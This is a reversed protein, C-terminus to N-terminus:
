KGTWDLRTIFNIQTVITSGTIGAAYTLTCDVVFKNGLENKIFVEYPVSFSGQKAFLQSAQKFLTDASFEYGANPPLVSPVKLFDPPQNNLKSGWLTINTRGNNLVDLKQTAVFKVIVSPDYSIGLQKELTNLTAESSKELNQLVVQQANFEQTQEKEQKYAMIIEGGILFIVIIELVFDRLSIWSDHRRDLESMYFQAETIHGPRELAGRTDALWFCKNAKARLQKRSLGEVLEVKIPTDDDTTWLPDKEAM